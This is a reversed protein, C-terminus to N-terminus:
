PTFHNAFAFCKFLMNIKYQPETTTQNETTSFEFRLISRAKLIHKLPYPVRVGQLYQKPYVQSVNFNDCIIKNSALDTIKVFFNAKNILLDQNSIYFTFNELEIDKDDPVVYDVLVVDSKNWTTGNKIASIQFLFNYRDRVLLADEFSNEKKM